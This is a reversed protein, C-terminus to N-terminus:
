LYGLTRAPATLETRERETAEPRPSVVLPRDADCWGVADSIHLQDPVSAAM